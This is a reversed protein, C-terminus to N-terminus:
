ATASLIEEERRGRGGPPEWEGGSSLSSLAPKEQNPKGGRAAGTVDQSHVSTPALMKRKGTKKKKESSFSREKGM